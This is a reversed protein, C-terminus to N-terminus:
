WSRRAPKPPAPQQARWEELRVLREELGEIYEVLALNGPIGLEAARKELWETREREWRAEMEHRFGILEDRYPAAGETEELDWCPDALWQRKLEEVQERTMAQAM